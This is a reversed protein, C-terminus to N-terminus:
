RGKIIADPQNDHTSAYVIQIMAGSFCAFDSECIINVSDAAAIVVHFVSVTLASIM